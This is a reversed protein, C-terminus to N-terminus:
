KMMSKILMSVKNVLRLHAKNLRYLQIRQEECKNQKENFLLELLEYKLRLYNKKLFLDCEAPTRFIYEQFINDNIGQINFTITVTYKEGISGKVDTIYCYKNMLENITM